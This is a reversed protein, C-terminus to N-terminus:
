TIDKSEALLGDGRKPPSGMTLKQAWGDRAVSVRLCGAGTLHCGEVCTEVEGVVEAGRLSILPVWHESVYKPAHMLFM